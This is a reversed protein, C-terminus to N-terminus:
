NLKQKVSSDPRLHVYFYTNAKMKLTYYKENFLLAEKDTRTSRKIM